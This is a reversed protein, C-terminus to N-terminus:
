FCVHVCFYKEQRKDTDEAGCGVSQVVAQRQRGGHAPQVPFSEHTIDVALPVGIVADPLLRVHFTYNLSLTM